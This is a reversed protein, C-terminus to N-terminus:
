SRSISEDIPQGHHIWPDSLLSAGSQSAVHHLREHRATDIPLVTSKQDVEIFSPLWGSRVVLSELVRGTRRDRECEHIPGHRPLSAVPQHAVPAREQLPDQPIRGMPSKEHLHVPGAPRAPLPQLVGM